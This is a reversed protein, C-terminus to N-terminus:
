FPLRLAGLLFQQLPAAAQCTKAFRDAFDPALAVKESLEAMCIFDVRKLDDVLEHEPDYGRPPRKLSDGHLELKATAKKWAAPRAVMADRVKKLSPGDPHWLGAGMWVSGPELHLYFGPAHVDNHTAKHRFHAAVHTKYPSKDRAFRTDRYIRFQSGVFNKSIKGLKVAFDEIFRAMPEKAVEEYRTKNEAFWDRNNNKKLERLFSFLGPGFYAKKAM